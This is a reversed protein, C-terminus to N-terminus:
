DVALSTMEKPDVIILTQYGVTSKSQIMINNVKIAKFVGSLEFFFAKDKTETITSVVNSGTIKM